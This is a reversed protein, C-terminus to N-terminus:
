SHWDCQERFECNCARGRVTRFTLSIRRNRSVSIFEGNENPILDTSRRAIMHTWCYRAAGKMILLSRPSLVMNVKRGSPHQFQMMVVSLLSLSCICEEFASHTDTHRRIGQGRIYENVTCQDLRIGDIVMSIKTKLADIWLPFEGLINPNCKRTSYNFEYGYHQVRRSFETRWPQTDCENVLSQEEKEDIFNEILQIGEIENMENMPNFM